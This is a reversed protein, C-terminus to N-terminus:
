LIHVLIRINKGKTSLKYFFFQAFCVCLEFCSIDQSPGLMAGLPRTGAMLKSAMKLVYPTMFSYRRLFGFIHSRYKEGFYMSALNRANISLWFKKPKYAIKAAAAKWNENLSKVATSVSYINTSEETYINNWEQKYTELLIASYMNFHM